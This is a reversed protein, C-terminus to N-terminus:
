GRHSGRQARPKSGAHPGNLMRADVALKLAREYLKIRVAPDRERDGALLLRRAEQRMGAAIKSQHDFEGM